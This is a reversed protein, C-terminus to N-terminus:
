RETVASAEQDAIDELIDRGGADLIATALERGLDVAASAPGSIRDRLAYSGDPAGLFGTVAIHGDAARALCGLPVSCGGELREGFARECEVEARVAPDDLPGFLTVLDSREVLAEVALAGQAPAPVWSAPDLAGMSGAETAELRELGAAALIAVDVDGRDVKALRTDLNGRLDLVELDPRRETLLARRRISSTGVRAGAPLGALIEDGSPGEGGVVVDHASARLPVCVITCGPGLGATLDKASHVAIDARGELVEREVESTFLGKGPISRFPRGDRDGRTTVTKIEVAIRPHARSVMDAVLEAQRLALRSGRSAIVLRAPLAEPASM